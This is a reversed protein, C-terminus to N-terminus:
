AAAREACRRCRRGVPGDGRHEGLPGNAITLARGCWARGPNGALHWVGRPQRWWLRALDDVPPAPAPAGTSNGGLEIRVSEPRFYPTGPTWGAPRGRPAKELVIKAFANVIARRQRITLSGWGARIMDVTLAARDDSTGISAELAARRARLRSVSDRMQETDLLGDTWMIRAQEIQEDIKAVESMVAVPDVKPDAALVQAAEPRALWRSLVEGVYTDTQEAGRTMHKGNPCSYVRIQEGGRRGTSMVVAQEVGLALCVGCTAIGSLLWRTENSNSRNTVRAPDDLIARAKEWQAADVIAPWQADGALETRRPRSGTKVEIRGINRGRKVTRKLEQITWSRGGSTTTGRDNLDRCISTLSEGAVVRDTMERVVQAERERVTVGDQEYGFPRPGGRYRGEAAAQRKQARIRDTSREVEQRAVAGLIRAIMRGADTSLDLEGARVTRVIVQHEECVEVFRELDRPHRYLRDTHWAIVTDVKGAQIDSIMQNFGPRPKGTYATLDNDSYIGGIRWGLSEALTVAEDRQRTVGSEEGTKDKSIRVYIAATRATTTAM